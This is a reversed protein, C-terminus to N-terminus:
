CHRNGNGNVVEQFYTTADNFDGPLFGYKGQFQNVATIYTQIDTTQSRMRASQILTNGALVSGVILGIVAIVVGMEVLTFGQCYRSRTEYYPTSVRKM